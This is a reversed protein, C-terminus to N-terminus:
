AFQNIIIIIIARNLIKIKIKISYTSAPRRGYV